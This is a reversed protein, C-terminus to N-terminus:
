LRKLDDILTNQIYLSCAKSLDDLAARQKEKEKKLIMLKILVRFIRKKISSTLM